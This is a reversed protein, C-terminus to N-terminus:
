EVAENTTSTAIHSTSKALLGQTNKVKSVLMANILSTQIDQNIKATMQLEVREINQKVASDTILQVNLEETAQTTLSMVMTSALITTSFLQFLPKM